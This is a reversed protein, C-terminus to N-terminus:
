GTVRTLVRLFNEGLIGRIAAESYGHAVLAETLRPLLRITELGQPYPLHDGLGFQSPPLYDVYDPGLAIHETGVLGTIHDIHSLLHAISAKHGEDHVFDGVFNIGITGGTAALAKIQDDHLNRRHGCIVRANSHSAIVPGEAVALLDWFSAVTLHSVDLLIGLQNAKGVMRRGLETLGANAREDGVGEALMNRQNWTLGLVRLGLQHFVRLSEVGDQVCEGGEIGLVFAVQGRAVAADIEARTTCFAVDPTEAIDDLAAGLLTVARRLARDPKHEEEVYLATVVVNVGGERWTPLHLRSLVNTEGRLRRLAVDCFVDSHGDVVLADRHLAAADSDTM